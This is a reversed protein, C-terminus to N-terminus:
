NLVVRFGASRSLKKGDFVTWLITNLTTIVICTKAQVASRMPRVCSANFDGCGPCSDHDLDDNYCPHDKGCTFYQSTIRSCPQGAEVRAVTQQCTVPPTSSDTCFTENPQELGYQYCSVTGCPDQAPVLHTEGWKVRRFTQNEVPLSPKKKKLSEPPFIYKRGSMYGTGDGFSVLSLKLDIHKTMEDTVGQERRMYDLGKAYGEPIRFVYTDGPQIAPDEPTALCQIDILERSGFSIPFGTVSSIPMTGDDRPKPPSPPIDPFDMYMLIFYIPKDSVNKVEIELAHNWDDGKNLNRIEKIAVPMREFRKPTIKREGTDQMEPSQASTMFSVSGFPVLSVLVVLICAIANSRM